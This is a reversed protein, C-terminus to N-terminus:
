ARSAGIAHLVRQEMQWPSWAYQKYLGYDPAADTGRQSLANQNSAHQKTLMQFLSSGRWARGAAQQFPPGESHVHTRARRASTEEHKLAMTM